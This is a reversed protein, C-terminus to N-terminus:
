RCLRAPLLAAGVAAWADRDDQLVDGWAGPRVTVGSAAQAEVWAEFAVQARRARLQYAEPGNDDTAM